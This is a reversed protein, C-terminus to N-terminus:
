WLNVEKESNNETEVYDCLPYTFMRINNKATEIAQSIVDKTQDSGSLYVELILGLNMSSVVFVNKQTCLQMVQTNVSGGLIDTFIVFETDTDSQVTESIADYLDYLSEYDVLNYAVMRDTDGIIMEAASLMGSALKGHSTIIFRRM